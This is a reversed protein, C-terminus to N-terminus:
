KVVHISRSPPYKKQGSECINKRTVDVATSVLQAHPTFQRREPKSKPVRAALVLTTGPAYSQKYGQPQPQAHMKHGSHKSLTECAGIVWGSASGGPERTAGWM